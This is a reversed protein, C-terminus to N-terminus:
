KNFNKGDDVTEGASSTDNVVVNTPKMLSVTIIKNYVNEHRNRAAVATPCNGVAIFEIRDDDGCDNAHVDVVTTSCNDVEQETIRDNDVHEVHEMMLMDDNNDDDLDCLEEKISIEEQHHHIVAVSEVSVDVEDCEDTFDMLDDVTESRQQRRIVPEENKKHISFLHRRLGFESSDTLQRQCLKCTASSSDTAIVFYGVVNIEKLEDATFQIGTCRFVHKDLFHIGMSRFMSASFKQQCIKCLVDMDSVSVEYFNLVNRKNLAKGNVLEHHHLSGFHHAMNKPGSMEQECIRCSSVNPSIDFFHEVNIATIDKVKEKFINVDFDIFSASNAARVNLDSVSDAAVIITTQDAISKNNTEIDVHHDNEVVIVDVLNGEPSDTDDNQKPEIANLLVDPKSRLHCRLNPENEKPLVKPGDDTMNVSSVDKENNTTTWGRVHEYFIHMKLVFNKPTTFSQQCIKCTWIKRDDVTNYFHVINKKNLFKGNHFDFKHVSFLHKELYILDTHILEAACIRCKAVIESIIDFFNCVDSATCNLFISSREDTVNCVSRIPNTTTTCIDANDDIKDGSIFHKSIARVHTMMLHAKLLSYRAMNFTIKCIKCMWLSNNSATQYFNLVNRNNILQHHTLNHKNSFLHSNIDGHVYRNCLRCWKVTSSLFDFFINLSETDSSSIIHSEALYREDEDKQNLELGLTNIATILPTIHRFLLHWRFQPSKFTKKCIKCTSKNVSINYFKRVIHIKLFHENKIDNLHM